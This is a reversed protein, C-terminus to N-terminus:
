IRAIKERQEVRRGVERGESWSVVGPPINKIMNMMAINDRVGATMESTVLGGDAYGKYSSTPRMANAAAPGGVRAVDEQNWVVEGAHVTGAPQYKSGPGTYGGEAFQVGHIAAVNALGQAIALAVNAAGLAPSAVTPPVFAAEYAKQATSYTSILTQFTAFTKFEESQQDFLSAAVGLFGTTIEIQADAVRQELAIRADAERRKQRIRENSFDEDSKRIRNNFREQIEFQDNLETAFAGRLPDGTTADLPTQARREARAIGEIEKIINKRATVNETLKGNIEEEIDRSEALKQEIQLVIADQNQWNANATKIAEIEQNIVNLRVTQNALLNQEVANSGRLREALIQEEDDRLRRADEATKEFLKAFGQARTAEIELKRLNERAQAANVSTTLLAPNLRYLIAATITSLFGTGGEGSEGGSLFKGFSETTSELASSLLDQAFSLDKAGSSSKLYAGALGTLVGIAATAPNLFKSMSSGADSVSVGFPKVQDVAAKFQDPYNGINDKFQSAEKSGKNLETNLKKLETTIEQSRKRGLATKTNLGDWEKNLESIRARMAGRSNAEVSLLKNLLRKQDTEKTVAKQLSLNSKVYDDEAIKGDKYEKNLSAQQRKLSLINKETTVLQKQAQTQDIEFNLLVTEEM